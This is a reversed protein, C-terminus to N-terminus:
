TINHAHRNITGVYWIYGEQEFGRKSMADGRWCVIDLMFFPVVSELIPTIQYGSGAVTINRLDCINRDIEGSDGSVHLLRLM